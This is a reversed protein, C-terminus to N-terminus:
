RALVPRHPLYRRWEFRAISRNQAEMVAHVVLAAASAILALNLGAIIPVFENSVDVFTM